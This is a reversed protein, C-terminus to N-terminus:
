LQWSLEENDDEPVFPKAISSIFASSYFVNETAIIGMLEEELKQLRQEEASSLPSSLSSSTSLSRTTLKSIESQLRTVQDQDIPPLLKKIEDVLASRLFCSGDAFLYFPRKKIPLRTL